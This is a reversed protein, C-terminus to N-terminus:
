YNRMQQLGNVMSGIGEIQIPPMNRNRSFRDLGSDIEQYQPMNNFLDRANNINQSNPYSNFQLGNIMNNFGANRAAEQQLDPAYKGAMPMFSQNFEYGPRPKPTFRAEAQFQEQVVPSNLLGRFANLDM